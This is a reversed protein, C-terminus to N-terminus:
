EEPDSSVDATDVALRHLLDALQRVDDPNWRSLRERWVATATTAVEDLRSRGEDTLAVLRARADNPDPHREVLRLRVVSDIQRTLTSKELGLDSLLDSMRIADHRSLLVLLPYCTPDLRPHIARARARMQIRGRRWIDAFEAELDTIPDSGM